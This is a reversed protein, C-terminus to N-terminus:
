CAIREYDRRKLTMLLRERCFRNLEHTMAFLGPHHQQLDDLLSLRNTMKRLSLRLRKGPSIHHATEENQKTAELKM